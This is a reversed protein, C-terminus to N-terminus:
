NLLAALKGRYVPVLPHDKGLMDFAKILGKRGADDNYSRDHRVINMLIDLASEPENHVLNIVALKYQAEWNSNDQAIQNNLLEESECQAAFEIFEINAAISKYEPTSKSDKVKDLTTRASQTDKISVYVGALRILSEDSDDKALAEIAQSIQGQDILIQISDKKSEGQSDLSVHKSLFQQVASKPQAGQFGDVVQGNVVLFVTPVSRVQFQAAIEQAEDINIKALAFADSNEAAIEELIPTLTKCPGCWPAWFDVLVAINRSKEVVEELFNDVTVDVPVAAPTSNENGIIHVM